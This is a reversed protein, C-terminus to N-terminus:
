FMVDGGNESILYICQCDGTGREGSEGLVYRREASRGEVQSNM